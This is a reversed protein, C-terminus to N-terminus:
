ERLTKRGLRREQKETIDLRGEREAQEREERQGKLSAKFSRRKKRHSKKKRSNYEKQKYYRAL